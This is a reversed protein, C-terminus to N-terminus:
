PTYTVILPETDSNRPPRLLYPTQRPQRRPTFMADKRYAGGRLLCTSGAIAVHVGYAAYKSPRVLAGGWFFFYIHQNKKKQTHTHTHM